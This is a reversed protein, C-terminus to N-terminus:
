KKDEKPTKIIVGNKLQDQLNSQTQKEMALNQNLTDMIKKNEEDKKEKLYPRVANQYLDQARQFVITLQNFEISKEIREIRDNVADLGKKTKGKEEVDLQRKNKKLEIM